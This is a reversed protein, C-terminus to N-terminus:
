NALRDDLMEANNKSALMTLERFPTLKRAKELHL